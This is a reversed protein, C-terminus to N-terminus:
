KNESAEFDEITKNLILQMGSVDEGLEEMRAIRERIGEIRKKSAKKDTRMIYKRLAAVEEKRAEEAKRAAVAEPRNAEFDAITAAEFNADESKVKQYYPKLITLLDSDTLHREDVAKRRGDLDKDMPMLVYLRALERDVRLYIDEVRGNLEAAKKAYPAITENSAGQEALIKAHEAASALSVRIERLTGVADATPATLLFAIQDLHPRNEAIALDISTTKDEMQPMDGFLSPTQAAEKRKEELIEENNKEREVSKEMPVADNLLAITRAKEEEVKNEESAAAAAAAEEKTPRGRRKAHVTTPVYVVHEGDIGKMVFGKSIQQRIREVLYTMTDIRRSFDRFMLASDIFGRCMSFASLLTLGEEFVKYHAAEWSDGLQALIPLKSKSFTTFDTLWKLQEEPTMTKYDKLEKM